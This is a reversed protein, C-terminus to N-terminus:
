EKRLCNECIGRFNIEYDVIKNNGIKYELSIDDKIDIIRGCNDCIFHNHKELLNDFHDGDKMKIRKIKREDVLNNLNRYVTGLSINSIVRRCKIYVQEATLHDYSHNIIDLIIKKQRTVRM